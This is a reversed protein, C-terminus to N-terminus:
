KSVVFKKTEVGETTNIHLMYVGNSLKSIDIKENLEIIENYTKTYYVQSSLDVISLKMNTTEGISFTVILDEATPNPALHLSVSQNVEENPTEGFTEYGLRIIPTVSENLIAEENLSTDNPKLRFFGDKTVAIAYGYRMKNVEGNANERISKLAYSYDFTNDTIISMPIGNANNSVYEIAAMYQTNKEMNLENEDGGIAQIPVAILGSEMGSVIYEQFGLSTIETEDDKYIIGDLDNDSIKYLWVHITDGVLEKPNGMYFSIKNFRLQKGEISTANPAYFINGIAWKYSPNVPWDYIDHFPIISGTANGNEKRFEFEDVVSLSFSQTNNSIDDDRDSSVTYTIDYEEVQNNPTFPQLFPTTTTISDSLIDGYLLNKNFVEIGSSNTAAINLSVNKQDTCALNEIIASFDIPDIMHVSMPNIHARAFEDKPIVLNANTAEVLRIDDVIWHYFDGDFGFRIRVDNNGEVGLLPISRQISKTPGNIIYNGGYDTSVDASNIAQSPNQWTQGDDVSFQVTPGLDSLEGGNLGRFSETWTLNVCSEISLDISPSVLFAKIRHYPPSITLDIDGTRGTQIWGAPIGVVGQSLCRKKDELLCDSGGFANPLCGTETWIWDDAVMTGNAADISMTEAQSTWDGLGTDFNEEYIIRASPETLGEEMPSAYACISFTGANETPDPTSWLRVLYNTNSELCTAPLTLTRRGPDDSFCDIAVSTAECDSYLALGQDMLETISSPDLRVEITIGFAPIDNGTEISYWVDDTYWSGSCVEPGPVLTADEAGRTDGRIPISSSSDAAIQLLSPTSCNDNIPQSYGVFTVGLLFLTSLIFHPNILSKM